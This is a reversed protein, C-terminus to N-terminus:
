KIKYKSMLDYITPRSVGLLNAAETINNDAYHIARIVADKEAEERIERLNLTVGQKLNDNLELDEDSILQRESMIVARKIKNQLERVNGPWSYNEILSLADITFGTVKKRAQQSYQSLFNKALLVVDGRRERLPPLNIKIESLRYYLDERFLSDSIMKELNHHTASIIRVNIPIEKHSGLHQIVREQLFRLLKAQLLMPLDGIEDLFLTGGDASEIKGISQKIAGTFAGKEYGFLESELLTEPIAACNITVFRKDNRASLDHLAHAVIEKGTGSEGILLLTTDTQAVKEITRCVKLMEPSATIISDMSSITKQKILERNEVELSHLQYARNVIINLIDTDIPKEYFDYAGAGIARVANNRDDNGTIVIVKTDPALSLIDDLVAFGESVNAPDPPLGLDLTVVAPKYRRICKLAADRNEAILVEYDSFCWKLQTQLGEDDEVILLTKSKTNTNNL